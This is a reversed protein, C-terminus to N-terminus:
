LTQGFDQMAGHLTNELSESEMDLENTHNISLIM